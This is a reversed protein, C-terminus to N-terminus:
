PHIETLRSDQYGGNSVTRMITKSRKVDTLLTPNKFVLCISGTDILLEENSYVGRSKNEPNIMNMLHM